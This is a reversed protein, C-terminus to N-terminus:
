FFNSRTTMMELELRKVVLLHLEILSIFYSFRSFWSTKSSFFFVHRFVYDPLGEEIEIEM